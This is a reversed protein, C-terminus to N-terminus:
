GSLPVGHWDFWGQVEPVLAIEPSTKKHGKQTAQAIGNHGFIVAVLLEAFVEHKALDVPEPFHGIVTQLRLVRIADALRVRLFQNVIATLCEAIGESVRVCSGFM